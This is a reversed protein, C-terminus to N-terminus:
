VLQQSAERVERVEYVAPTPVANPGQIFFDAVAEGFNTIFNRLSRLAATVM